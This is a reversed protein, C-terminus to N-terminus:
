QQIFDHLDAALQDTDVLEALEPPLSLSNSFAYTTKNAHVALHLVESYTFLLPSNQQERNERTVTRGPFVNLYTKSAFYRDIQYRSLSDATFVGILKLVPKMAEENRTLIIGTSTLQDFTLNWKASIYRATFCRQPNGEDFFLSYALANAYLRKANEPFGLILQTPRLLSM